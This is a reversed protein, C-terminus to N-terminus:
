RWNQPPLINYDLPKLFPDRTLHRHLALAICVSTGLLVTRALGVVESINVFDGVVLPMTKCGTLAKIKHALVALM